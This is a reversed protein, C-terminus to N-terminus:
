SDKREHVWILHHGFETKIPDSCKNLEMSWVASDFESVMQGENFWGLDGGRKGSPCNSKKMAFKEFDQAKNILVKIQIAEAKSNVLIHSAHAMKTSM